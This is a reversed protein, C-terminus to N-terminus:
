MEDEFADSYCIQHLAKLANTLAQGWITQFNEQCVAMADNMVDEAALEFNSLTDKLDQYIDALNESIYAVIPTDSYQMDEHFTELYDNKEGLKEAINNSLHNYDYETVFREPMEELRHEFKPLLSAKLYLLPLLKTAKEVFTKPTFENQLDLFGCYENAVTIFEISPRSYIGEPAKEHKM